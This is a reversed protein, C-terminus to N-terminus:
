KARSTIGQAITRVKYVAGGGVMYLTRKDPGAFAMNSPGAGTPITGLHKGDPSFVQVGQAAAYLRGESDMALGDGRSMVFRRQNRLTGDPQVDFAVIEDRNTAYLVKEDPSLQVGNPRITDNVSIVGGDPRVYFVLSKRNVPPARFKGHAPSDAPDTFYIGGKSDAVIDNPYGLTQGGFSNVIVERVPAIAALEGTRALTAVLRGRRDYALGRPHGVVNDLYTSVRDDGDIKVIRAAGSETFLLSGDPMAIPGEQSTFGDRVLQVKTGGAIVGPIDTAVLERPLAPKEQTPKEQGSVSLALTSAVVVTLIIRM